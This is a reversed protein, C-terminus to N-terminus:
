VDATPSPNIPQLSVTLQSYASVLRNSAYWPQILVEGPTTTYVLGGSTRVIANDNTDAIEVFFSESTVVYGPNILAEIEM